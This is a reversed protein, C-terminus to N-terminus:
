YIHWEWIGNIGNLIKVRLYRAKINFNDTHPSQTVLEPHGGCPKWTKGNTSYELVYAHGATPRVFYVESRKINKSKGLDAVIWSATDEPAAMWRSGNADDFAFASSFSETRRFLSDQNRKIVLDSRVSSVKSNVVKIKKGSTVTHLAGVGNLTLDVPRITGDENFELKNVYTQRNTSRRGFELYAFYYDDTGPVNFVCGHGPGFVQREHNTTSIIDNEPFDFPGLPSTKGMGYAYQYKEDGGLTYLYYYIGKRKFFMPGESYGQRKTSIKIISASDVSVMDPNLKAASRHQWFVYAQQDDDIFIEADIGAPGKPDKSKLLTASTIKKSFTDVGQALKFPGEPSDAVAPYMFGNVTPYIYYKGNAAVAKSPAWYKHGVASPFYFGSFSWHVFDKSKWVVPLGSTELGRDYGDTTAYCYFTGNIEQISADAIMDPILPNGFPNEKQAKVSLVFLLLFCNLFAKITVPSVMTRKILLPLANIIAKM